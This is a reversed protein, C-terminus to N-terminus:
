CRLKDFCKKCYFEATDKDITIGVAVPKGLTTLVDFDSLTDAIVNNCYSCSLIYNNKEYKKLMEFDINIIIKSDDKKTKKIIM